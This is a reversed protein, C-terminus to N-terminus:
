DRPIERIRPDQKREKEGKPEAEGIFDPLGSDLLWRKSEEEYWWTQPVVKTQLNGNSTNFFKFEAQVQASTGEEDFNTERVSYGTIRIDKMTHEDLTIRNGDRAMHFLQADDYRGWRLAQAYDNIARDLSTLRSKVGSGNCGTVFVLVLLALVKYM